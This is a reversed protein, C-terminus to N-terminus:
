NLKINIEGMNKTNYTISCDYFKIGNFEYVTITLFQTNNLKSIYKFQLTKIILKNTETNM